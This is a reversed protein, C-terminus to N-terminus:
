SLAYEATRILAGLNPSLKIVSIDRECIASAICSLIDSDALEALINVYQQRVDNGYNAHFKFADHIALVTFSKKPLSNILQLAKQRQSESLHGRNGEDLYEFIIASMFGTAEELALLRLLALDKERWNSPQLMAPAILIGECWTIHDAAFTCRRGMERVVMGDISHVINAGLSLGSPMAQNVCERVEHVKGLFEVPHDIHGIVKVRVDFGDPLTWEHALVDDRWLSLLAHNLVNAGPLNEDIAQYFAKLEPTDEGFTNKPEARSGYFHTMTAQKVPKREFAQASGLIANIREHVQTYTDVRDGTDVLNCNRASTECGAMLSLLQIGSATADLGCLYGTPEGRLTKQYAMVGALFQAPEDANTAYLNTDHLIYQISEDFWSLREQWTKKDHGFSNAIDIKLYELATFTKM